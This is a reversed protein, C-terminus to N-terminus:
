HSPSIPQTVSSPDKQWECMLGQLQFAPLTRPLWPRCWWIIFSLSLSAFHRPGKSHFEGEKWYPLVLLKHLHEISLLHWAGVEGLSAREVPQKGPLNKFVATDLYLECMKCNVWRFHTIWAMAWTAWNTVFNGQGLVGLNHTRDGTLAYVLISWHICWYTSCCISTERQGDTERDFWYM